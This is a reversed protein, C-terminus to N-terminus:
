NLDIVKQMKKRLHLENEAAKLEAKTRELEAKVKVNDSKLLLNKFKIRKIEKMFMHVVYFHYVLLALALGLVLDFM